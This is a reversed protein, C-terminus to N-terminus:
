ASRDRVGDEVEKGTREAHGREESQQGWWLLLSLPPAQSDSRLSPVSFSVSWNPERGVDSHCEQPRSGCQTATGPSLSLLLRPPRVAQGETAGKQYRAGCLIAYFRACRGLSPQPPCRSQFASGPGGPPAQTVTGAPSHCPVGAQLVELFRKRLYTPQPKRM